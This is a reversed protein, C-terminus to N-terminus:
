PVCPGRRCGRLLDGRSNHAGGGEPWRRSLRKFYEKIIEFVGPGTGPDLLVDGLPKRALPLLEECLKNLMPSLSETVTRELPLPDRLRQRLVKGAEEESPQKEDPLPTGTGLVLLDALQKRSLRSTSTDDVEQVGEKNQLM